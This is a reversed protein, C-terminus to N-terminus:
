SAFPRAMTKVNQNALDSTVMRPLRTYKLPNHVNRSNEYPFMGHLYVHINWHPMGHSRVPNRLYTSRKKSLPEGGRPLISRLGDVRLSAPFIYSAIRGDWLWQMTTSKFMVHLSLLTKTQEHQQFTSESYRTGRAFCAYFAPFGHSSAGRQYFFPNNIGYIAGNTCNIHKVDIQPLCVIATRAHRMHTIPDCLRAYCASGRYEKKSDGDATFAPPLWPALCGSRTGRCRKPKNM